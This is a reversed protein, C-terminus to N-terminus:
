PDMDPYKTVTSMESGQRGQAAASGAAIYLLM